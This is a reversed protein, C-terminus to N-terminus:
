NQLSLLQQMHTHSDHTHTHTSTVAASLRFCFCCLSLRSRTDGLFLPFSAVVFLLLLLLLPPRHAAISRPLRDAKKKDPAGGKEEAIESRHVRSAGDREKTATKESYSCENM